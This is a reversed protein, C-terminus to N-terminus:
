LEGGILHYGLYLNRPCGVIRSSNGLPADPMQRAAAVHGITTWGVV